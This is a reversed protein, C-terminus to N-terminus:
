ANFWFPLLCHLCHYLICYFPYIHFIISPLMRVIKSPVLGNDLQLRDEIFAVGLRTFNDISAQAVARFPQGPSCALPLCYDSWKLVQVCCVDSTLHCELPDVACSLYLLESNLIPLQCLLSGIGKFWCLNWDSKASIGKIVWHLLIKNKPTTCQPFTMQMCVCYQSQMCVGTCTGHVYLNLSYSYLCAWVKSFLKDMGMDWDKHLLNLVNQNLFFFFFNICGMLKIRIELVQIANNYLSFIM